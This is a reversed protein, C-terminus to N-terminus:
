PDEYLVCRSDAWSITRDRQTQDGLDPIMWPDGFPTRAADILAARVAECESAARFSGARAWSAVPPQAGHEMSQPLLLAWGMALLIGIQHRAM